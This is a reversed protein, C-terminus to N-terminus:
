PPLHEEREGSGLEKALLHSQQHQEAVRRAETRAATRGGPAGKECCGVSHTAGGGQKRVGTLQRQWTEQQTGQQRTTSPALM